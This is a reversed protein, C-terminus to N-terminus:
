RREGRAETSPVLVGRQRAPRLTSPRCSGLALGSRRCGAGVSGEPGLQPGTTEPAPVEDSHWPGPM